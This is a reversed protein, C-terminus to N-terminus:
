EEFMIKTGLLPAECKVWGKTPVMVEVKIVTISDLEKYLGEPESKNLFGSHSFFSDLALGAEGYPKGDDPNIYLVSKISRVIGRCLEKAEEQSKVPFVKVYIIIRNSSWDYFAEPAVAISSSIGILGKSEEWNKLKENIRYIGWDFMSVSEHMLYQINPTPQAYSTNVLFLISLILLISKFYYM